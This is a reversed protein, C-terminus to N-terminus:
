HQNKSTVSLDVVQFDTLKSDTSINNHKVYVRLQNDDMMKCGGKLVEQSKLEYANASDEYFDCTACKGNYWKENKWSVIKEEANTNEFKLLYYDSDFGEQVDVCRTLKKSVIVGAYETIVEWENNSQSFANTTSFLTTAALFFKFGSWFKLSLTNM